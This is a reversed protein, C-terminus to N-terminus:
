QVLNSDSRLRFWQLYCSFIEGNRWATQFISKQVKQASVFRNKSNGIPRILGATRGARLKVALAFHGRISRSSM